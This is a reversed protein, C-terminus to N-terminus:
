DAARYRGWVWDMKKEEWSRRHLDAVISALPHLYL